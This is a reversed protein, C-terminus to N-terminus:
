QMLHKIYNLKYEKMKLKLYNDFMHMISITNSNAKSLLNFSFDISFAM